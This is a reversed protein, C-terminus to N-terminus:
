CGGPRAGGCGRARACCRPVLVAVTAEVVDACGGQRAVAVLVLVAVLVVATAKVVVRVLVVVCCRALAVSGGHHGVFTAKAGM